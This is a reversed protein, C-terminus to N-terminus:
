AAHSHPSTGIATHRCGLLSNVPPVVTRLLCPARQYVVVPRAEHWTQQELVVRSCGQLRGDEVGLPFCVCPRRLVTGCLLIADTGGLGGTPRPTTHGQRMWILHLDLLELLAIHPPLASLAGPTTLPRCIDFDVLLQQPLPLITQVHGLRQVRRRQHKHGVLIFELVHYLVDFGRHGLDYRDVQLVCSTLGETAVRAEYLYGGSITVVDDVWEIHELLHVGEVLDSCVRCYEFHEM